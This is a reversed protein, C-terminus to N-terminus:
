GRKKPISLTKWEEGKIMKAILVIQGVHYAYHGLQRLLADCVSLSEGRIHITTTIDKEELDNIAKFVCAWGENWFTLLDNMGADSAEFEADRKRWTKEGDESLFNTFRSLMNGYLHQLNVAITNNEASPQFFFDAEKLQAFTKDGMQKYSEFRKLIKEKFIKELSM